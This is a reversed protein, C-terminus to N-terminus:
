AACVDMGTEADLAPTLETDGALAPETAVAGNLAPRLTVAAICIITSGVIFKFIALADALEAADDPALDAMLAEFGALSDALTISADTLQALLEQQGALSDTLNAADDSMAALLGVSRAVSDTFASMADAPLNALIQAIASEAASDLWNNASDAGHRAFLRFMAAVSDALNNADDTLSALLARRGALVDAFNNLSDPGLNATLALIGGVQTAIQDLLNQASDIFAALLVLRGTLSDGLNNADDTFTALLGRIATSSDALNVMDDTFTALLGRIAAFSDALNAADDSLTAAITRFGDLSDALNGWADTLAVDLAAQGTIIKAVLDAWSNADDTLLANLAKFAAISDALNAASDTLAARHGLAPLVSDAITEWTDDLEVCYEGFTFMIPDDLNNADDTFSAALTLGGALVDALNAWADSLDALLDAFQPFAIAVSDSWQNADDYFGVYHDGITRTLPDDLNNADDTFSAALTLAALVSDALFNLNDDLNLYDDAELRMPLDALNAWTDTFGATIAAGGTLTKAALDTWGARVEHALVLLYDTLNAADDTLNVTLAAQGYLQAQLSDLLNNADDALNADLTLAGATADALNAWGDTLAATLAAEQSVALQDLFVLADAPSLNALIEVFGALSDALNNASDSLDVRHQLTAALADTFATMADPPLNAAIAGTRQALVSDLFNNADDPITVYHDGITHTLPDNWGTARGVSWLLYDTLNNWTSSVQVTIPTTGLNVLTKAASDLFNNADDAPLVATKPEWGVWFSCTVNYTTWALGSDSNISRLWLRTGNAVDASRVQVCFEHEFHETAAIDYATGGCIGNVEDFATAGEFVGTGGTLQETLNAADAVNGSASARVVTSSASVAVWDTGNLSYQLLVDLNNILSTDNQVGFRIRLNQDLTQIWSTSQNAKWTATTENGDDNRARYAYVTTAM